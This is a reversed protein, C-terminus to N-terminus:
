KIKTEIVGIPNEIGLIESIKVVEDWTFSTICRMKKSMAYHCIGLHEALMKQTIGHNFM